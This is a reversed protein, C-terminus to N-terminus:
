CLGTKTSRNNDYNKVVGAEDLAINGPSKPSVMFTLPPRNKEHLALVKDMPFPVFNDSYLLLFREDLKEKAEWIRKGTDWEVPGQSYQIQWGWTSGDKFYEEIKEALYGTLLIFRKIGQEEMQQLLIGCFRSAM